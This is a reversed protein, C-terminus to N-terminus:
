QPCIVQSIQGGSMDSYTYPANLGDYFATEYTDPDIRYAANGGLQIAWIFGDVDVAIGRYINNGPLPIIDGVVM